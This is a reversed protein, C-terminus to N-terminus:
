MKMKPMKMPMPFPTAPSNGTVGFVAKAEPPLHSTNSLFTVVQWIERDELVNKWGPMGTWRVGHLIIYYNENEEMDPLDTLFQPPPPYLTHALPSIPRAPDGHCLACHQRYISAGSVLNAATAEVPNTVKPANREVNADMVRMALNSEFSSPLIDARMSVRGTWGVFLAVLVASVITAMVGWLFGKM